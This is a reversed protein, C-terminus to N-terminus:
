CRWDPTSTSAPPAVLPSLRREHVRLYAVRLRRGLRPDLLNLYLLIAISLPVRWADISDSSPLSPVSAKRCGNPTRAHGMLPPCNDRNECSLHDHTQCPAIIIGMCLSLLFINSRVTSAVLIGVHGRDSSLVVIFKEPLTTALALIILASASTPSALYIRSQLRQMHYDALCLTLQLKEPV